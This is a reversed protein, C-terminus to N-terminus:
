CPPFIMGKVSMSRKWNLCFYYKAKSAPSFTYKKCLKARTVLLVRRIRARWSLTVVQSKVKTYEIFLVGERFALDPNVVKGSSSIARCYFRAKQRFEEEQAPKVYGVIVEADHLTERTAGRPDVLITPEDRITAM